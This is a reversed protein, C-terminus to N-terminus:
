GNKQRAYLNIQEKMKAILESDICHLFFNVPECSEDLGVGQEVGHPGMCVAIDTVRVVDKREV